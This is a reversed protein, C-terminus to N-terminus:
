IESVKMMNERVQCKKKGGLGERIDFVQGRMLHIVSDKIFQVKGGHWNEIKYNKLLTYNEHNGDVWLTTFNKNELKNLYYNDGRGNGWVGGFDGCIIVYDDKTLNKQKTFADDDLKHIDIPIHTDGTVYIM